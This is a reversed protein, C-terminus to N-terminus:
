IWEGIGFSSRKKIARNYLELYIDTTITLKVIERNNEIDALTVRDPESLRIRAIHASMFLVADDYEPSLEAEAVGTDISVIHKAIDLIVQLETDPISTTDIGTLARLNTIM